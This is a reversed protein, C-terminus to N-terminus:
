MGEGLFWEYWDSNKYEDPASKLVIKRKTKGKIETKIFRNTKKDNKIELSLKEVELATDKIWQYKYMDVQGPAGYYIGIVKKELPYFSPNYFNIFNQFDGSQKRFVYVDSFNKLWNGNMGYWNLVFDKYGDGNVDMFTDSEYTMKWEIRNLVNILKNDEFLFIDIYVNNSTNTKMLLHKYKPSIWHVLTISTTANEVSDIDTIFQSDFNAKNINKFGINKAKNIIQPYVISDFYKLRTEYEEQDNDPPTTPIIFSTDFTENTNTFNTNSSNCSLNLWTIILFLLQIKPTL